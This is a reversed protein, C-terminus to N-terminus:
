STEVKDFWILKFFNCVALTVGCFFAVRTEKFFVRFMDKFDVDGLSIARIITVSSQNGSNGGTGMLMPMFATLVLYKEMASSYRTIILSTFTASIMLILLWPIRAKWTEYVSTKFYPKDSPTIAAMKEFDETTEEELVDIADDITVIGVLRQEDDVVPVALLAYKKFINAVVEMDELTHDFIMNTEMIDEIIADTESLLLSKASGIGILKRNSDTVYCTYITEKDIGTRRIRKLAEEVTMDRRLSIYEITMISGTSDEPYKLFENIM